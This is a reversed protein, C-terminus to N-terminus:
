RSYQKAKPLIADEKALAWGYEATASPPPSAPAAHPSSVKVGPYGGDMLLRPLTVPQLGRSKLGAIISPLAALTEERQAPADHMLIISGPHAANLVNKVIADTGPRSWDDSDDTWVITTLGVQDAVRLVRRNTAGYPPRWFWICADAGLAAHLADLTAQLQYHMAPPKLTTMDPHDWTHVGIAFGDHWERRALDPAARVENGLLFFTAPTHTQELYQVIPITTEPVPGDDFTLAVENPASHGAYMGQYIPSAQPAPRGSSCGMGTNLQANSPPRPTATSAPSHGGRGAQGNSTDRGLIGLGSQASHVLAVSGLALAVITTALMAGTILKRRPSWSDWSGGRRRAPAGAVPNRQPRRRGM